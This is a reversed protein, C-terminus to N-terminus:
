LISSVLWGIKKQEELDNNNKKKKNNYKFILPQIRHDELQQLLQVYIIPLNNLAIIHSIPAITQFIDVSVPSVCNIYNLAIIHRM